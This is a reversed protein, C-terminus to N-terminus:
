KFYKAKFDDANKVDSKVANTKPVKALITKREEERSNKQKAVSLSDLKAEMDIKYSEFSNKLAELENELKEVKDEEKETETAETETDESVEVKEEEVETAEIVEGEAPATTEAVEVDNDRKSMSLDNTLLTDWNQSNMQKQLEEAKKKMEDQMTNLARANAGHNSWISTLTNELLEAKTIVYSLATKLSGYLTNIVEDFWFKERAEDFTYLKGTEKEEYADELTIAGTSLMSIYGKEVQKRKRDDLVDLDVYFVSVLNNKTDLYLEQVFGIGGYSDDHDLFVIPNRAFNEVVWGDQKYKYRNRSVEGKKYDQSLIGQFLKINEGEPVSNKNKFLTTKKEGEIEKLRDRNISNTELNLFHKDMEQNKLIHKLIISKKVKEM